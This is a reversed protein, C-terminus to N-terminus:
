NDIIKRFLRPRIRYYNNTIQIGISGGISELGVYDYSALKAFKQAEKIIISGKSDNHNILVCLELNRTSVELIDRGLILNEDRFYNLSFSNIRSIVSKVVFFEEQNITTIFYPSSNVDTEIEKELEETM